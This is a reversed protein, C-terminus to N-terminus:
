RDSVISDKRCIKRLLLAELFLISLATLFFVYCACIVFCNTHAEQSIFNRYSPCYRFFPRVFTDIDAHFELKRSCRFLWYVGKHLFYISQVCQNDPRASASLWANAPKNYGYPNRAERDDKDEEFYSTGRDLHVRSLLFNALIDQAKIKISSAWRLGKSMKGVGPRPPLRMGVLVLDMCEAETGM